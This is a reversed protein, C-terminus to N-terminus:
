MGTDSETTNIRQVNKQEFCLKCRFILIILSTTQKIYTGLQRLLTLHIITLIFAPFVM